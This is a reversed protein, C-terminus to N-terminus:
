NKRLPGELYTDGGRVQPRYCIWNGFRKTKQYKSNRVISLTWFGLSESHIKETWSTNYIIRLLERCRSLVFAEWVTWFGSYIMKTFETVALLVSSRVFSSDDLNVKRIVNHSFNHGFTANSHDAARNRIRSIELEILCCTQNFKERIYITVGLSLVEFCPKFVTDVGQGNM